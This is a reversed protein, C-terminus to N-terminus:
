RCGGGRYGRGGNAAVTRCRFTDDLESLMRDITSLADAAQKMSSFEVRQDGIQVSRYVLKGAAMWGLISAKAAELQESTTAMGAM